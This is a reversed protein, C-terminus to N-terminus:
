EIQQWVRCSVPIVTKANRLNDMPHLYTHELLLFNGSSQIAITDLVHNDMPYIYTHELLLFHDSSHIAITDFVHNDIPHMSM